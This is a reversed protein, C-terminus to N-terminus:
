QLCRYKTPSVGMKQKFCRSFHYIDYFGCCRAIEGISLTGNELFDVAYSLRVHLIYAHLSMGTCSKILSNVYNPHFGFFDAITKNTLPYPYQEHIYDLICPAIDKKHQLIPSKLSRAAEILAQTFLQSEKMEHYLLRHMYETRINELIALLKHLRYVACHENFFTTDEFCVHEIICEKSFLSPLVPPVPTVLNTHQFTYDFNFALYTVSDVPALLHYSIGSNIFLADGKELTYLQTDISIEGRGETVFFLRADCPYVRNYSSSSNLYLYHAYRIFPRIESFYM